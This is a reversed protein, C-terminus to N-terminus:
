GCRFFLRPAAGNGESGSGRIAAEDLLSNIGRSGIRSPISGTAGLLLQEPKKVPHRHSRPLRAAERDQARRRSKPARRPTAREVFGRGIRSEVTIEDGNSEIVRVNTIHHRTRSPPDESWSFGTALKKVRNELMAKDDDFLGMAGPKTFENDLDDAMVTRRIPMWYNTDPTFLNLWEEFRREDLLAAEAYYFQEIEYQRLM